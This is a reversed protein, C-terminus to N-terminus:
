YIALVMFSLMARSKRLRGRRRCRLQRKSTIIRRTCITKKISGKGSTIAIVRTNSGRTHKPKRQSQGERQERKINLNIVKNSPDQISM